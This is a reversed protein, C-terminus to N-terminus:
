FTEVQKQFYTNNNEKIKITLKTRNQYISKGFIILLYAYHTYNLKKEPFCINNKHYCPM